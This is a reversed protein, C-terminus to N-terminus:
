LDLVNNMDFLGKRKNQLWIASLIAGSSFNERNSAKHSIELIEEDNAFLVSHEGVINGARITSFGITNKERKENIGHRSFVAYKNFDLNKEKAIIEGIKLATGSPSDKKYRHHAEIIETDYNKLKNVSNKVLYFLINMGISFNPSLVIAIKNSYDKITLKQKNNFGTTGIVINKKFKVCVDLYNLTAKPQSFDIIIDSEKIINIDDSIIVKTSIGINYGADKGLHKSNKHTLAGVLISNNNETISKVLAQGMKGGAGCITIKTKM